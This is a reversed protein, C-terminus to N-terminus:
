RFKPLRFRSYRHRHLYHKLIEQDEQPLAVFQAGALYGGEPYPYDSIRSHVVTVRTHIPGSEGLDVMLDLGQEPTLPKESWLLVGSMSAEVVRCRIDSSDNEVRATLDVPIRTAM